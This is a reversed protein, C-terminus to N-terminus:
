NRGRPGRQGAGQGPTRDLMADINATMRETMQKAQDATLRGAAVAEDIRAQHAELLKAKLTDRSIGKAEAVQALSKGAMMETRLEQPTMGLINAIDQPGGQRMGPGGQQGQGQRPGPGQRPGMGQQPGGQRPGMGQPGMGQRPGQGNQIAQILQNARDQDLKGDAVAKNILDIRAQKQAEQLQTSSVGLRGALADQYAQHMQERQQQDGQQMGRGGRPGPKTAPTPTAAQQLQTLGAVDTAAWASGSPLVMSTGAIAAILALSAGAAAIRTKTTRANM